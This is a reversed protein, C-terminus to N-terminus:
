GGEVSNGTLRESPAQVGQKERGWLELKRYLTRRDMGLVRAASARNGGFSDLVQGVYRRELEGISPLMSPHAGEVALVMRLPKYEISAFATMLIVPTDERLQVIKRCLDVGSMARM